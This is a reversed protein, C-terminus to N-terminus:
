YFAKHHINGNDGCWKVLDEVKNILTTRTVEKDISTAHVTIAFILVLVILVKKM